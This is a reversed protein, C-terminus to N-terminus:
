CPCGYRMAKPCRRPVPNPSGGSKQGEVCDVRLLLALASVPASESVDAVAALYGSDGVEKLSYTGSPATNAGAAPPSYGLNLLYLGLYALGAAVALALPAYRIVKSYRM